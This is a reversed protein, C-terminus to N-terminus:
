EQDQTPPDSEPASGLVAGDVLRRARREFVTGAVGSLVMLFYVMGPTGLLWFSRDIPVVLAVIMSAVGTAPVWLWRGVEGYTRVREETNLGLNERCRWAHWYLLALTFGLSSWAVGYIVFMLRLDSPGSIEFAYPLHWSPPLTLQSLWGFAAGFMLRLPYVWVMVLLVLLLSFFTSLGDDLGYRRSWTNHGYWFIAVMSFCAAFAPVFKLAEILSEVDEPISGASIVILSMTFAFAADVFAELRTVQGGRELFGDPRRVEAITM